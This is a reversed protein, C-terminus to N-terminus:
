ECNVVRLSGDWSVRIHTDDGMKVFPCETRDISGSDKPDNLDPVTCHHWIPYYEDPDPVVQVNPVIPLFGGGSSDSMRPATTPVPLEEVLFRSTSFFGSALDTIRSGPCNGVELRISHVGAGITCYKCVHSLVNCYIFSLSVCTYICLDTKFKYM